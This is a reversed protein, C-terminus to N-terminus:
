GEVGKSRKTRRQEGHKSGHQAQRLVPYGQSRRSREPYVGDFPDYVWIAGGAMM